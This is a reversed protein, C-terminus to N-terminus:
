SVEAGGSVHVVCILFVSEPPRQKGEGGQLPRAAAHHKEVSPDRQARRHLRRGDDLSARARSVTGLM